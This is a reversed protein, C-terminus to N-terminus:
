AVTPLQKYFVNVTFKGATVGVAGGANAIRVHVNGGAHLYLGQATTPLSTGEETLTNGLVAGAAAAQLATADLLEAGGATTGVSITSTTLGAGNTSATDVVLLVSEVLSRAPLTFAIKDTNGVPSFWNISAGAVFTADARNFVALKAGASAANTDPKNNSSARLAAQETEQIANWLLEPSLKANSPLKM